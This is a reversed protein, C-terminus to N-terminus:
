RKMRYGWMDRELGAKKYEEITPILVASVTNSFTVKKANIVNGTSKNVKIKNIDKELVCLNSDSNMKKNSKVVNQEEKKKHYEKKPPRKQKRWRYTHSFFSTNM